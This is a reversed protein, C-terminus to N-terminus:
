MLNKLKMKKSRIAKSTKTQGSSASRHTNAMSRNSNLVDNRGSSIPRVEEDNANILIASKNKNISTINTSSTDNYCSKGQLSKNKFYFKNRQNIDTQGMGYESTMRTSASTQDAPNLHM